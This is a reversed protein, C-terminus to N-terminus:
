DSLWTEEVASSTMVVVGIKLRLTMQTCGTEKGQYVQVALVAASDAIGVDTIAIATNNAYTVGMFEISLGAVLSSM